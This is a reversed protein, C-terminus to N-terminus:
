YYIVVLLYNYVVHLSCVHLQQEIIVETSGGSVCDLEPYRCEPLRTLDGASHSPTWTPLRVSLVPCQRTALSSIAGCILVLSSTSFYYNSM